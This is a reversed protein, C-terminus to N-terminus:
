VEQRSYEFVVSGLAPIIHKEPAEFCEHPRAYDALRKHLMQEVDHASKADPFAHSHLLEIPNGSLVAHPSRNFESLRREICNTRGIKYFDTGPIRFVYVVNEGDEYTSTRDGMSPVPGPQTTGLIETLKEHPKLSPISRVVDETYPLDLIKRADEESLELAYAAEAQGMNTRREPLVEKILPKGVISRAALYPFGRPWRFEGSENYSKSTLKTGLEELVPELDVVVNTIQILGLLCGREDESTESGSTGAIVIWDGTKYERELKNLGSKQSFGIMPWGDPDYGWTKKLFVKM